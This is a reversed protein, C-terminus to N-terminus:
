IYLGKYTGGTDLHLVNGASWFRGVHRKRSLISKGQWGLSTVTRIKDDLILKAQQQFEYMCLIIKTM